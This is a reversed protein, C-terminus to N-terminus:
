RCPSTTLRLREGELEAGADAGSRRRKMLLRTVQDTASIVSTQVADEIWVGSRVCAVTLAARLDIPSARRERRHRCGGARQSGPRANRDQCERRRSRSREGDSRAGGDDAARPDLM